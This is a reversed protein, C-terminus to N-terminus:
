IEIGHRDKLRMVRRGPTAWTSVWACEGRGSVPVIWGYALGVERLAGFTTKDGVWQRRTPQDLSVFKRLDRRTFARSVMGGRAEDVYRFEVRAGLAPPITAPPTYAMREAEIVDASARPWDIVRRAFQPIAAPRIAEPPEIHGVERARITVAPRTVSPGRLRAGLEILARTALGGAVACVGMMVLAVDLRILEPDGM